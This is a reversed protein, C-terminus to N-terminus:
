LSNTSSNTRLPALCLAIWAAASSSSTAIALSATALPASTLPLSGPRAETSARRRPDGVTGVM